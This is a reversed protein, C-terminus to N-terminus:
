NEERYNETGIKRGFIHRDFQALDKIVEISKFHIKEFHQKMQAAQDKGMEMGCVGQTKLLAFSTQSWIKLDAYGQDQSFLATNPEFKKVNIEVELSENEIYPPNALVLDFSGTQSEFRESQLDAQVFEIKKELPALSLNEFKKEALAKLESKQEDNNLLLSESNKKAVSLAEGSKDVAWLEVSRLKSFSKGQSRKIEMAKVLSLGICGSGCGMDMIKIQSQDLFELYKLGAEVLLETEPRPILVNKDVHFDFGFFGKSGVIYAVPEGLSRRRVAERCRSLEDDKLPTSFKLYLDVRNKLGLSNALLLEADLRPSEIQKDRFFQTTKDLVEKLLM